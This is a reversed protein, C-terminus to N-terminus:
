NQKFIHIIKFHTIDAKLLTACDCIKRGETINVSYSLPKQILTSNNM